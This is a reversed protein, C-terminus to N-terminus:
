NGSYVAGGVADKSAGTVSSICNPIGEMRMVGLLAMLCAEKFKVHDLAPITVEVHGIEARICEMLFGNFVGGGTALLRYNEKRFEEKDIIQSISNKLQFAVHRCVTHLKDQVAAPSNHCIKAPNEQVWQNSLSKPYPKSLFPLANLQAFLTKDLRGGAALHGNEDLPVGLENALMNLVQNAGTIDFAVFRGNANCTINAIGGLNLYFDFGPFLMKDAMPALPAGQGGLAVDASRFDCVVKCGTVAALVAGDGIQVTFGQVPEHFVTHGHSAILDIETGQIGNKEFFGNLLQGLYHGFATHLQALEFASSAPAEKLKKEWDPGFPLCDTKLLKWDLVQFPQGIEFRCYGVDLGDLSSGSMLGIAHYVKSM